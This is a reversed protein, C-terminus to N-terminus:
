QPRIIFVTDGSEAFAELGAKARELLDQIQSTSCNGIRLWVVRPPSGRLVALDHFDSDKSVIVFGNDRAFAWVSVDSSAGLGCEEVHISDPFLAQLRWALRPSLNEDVLLKV